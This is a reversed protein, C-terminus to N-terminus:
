EEKEKVGGTAFWIFLASLLFFKLCYVIIVVSSTEFRTGRTVFYGDSFANWIPILSIVALITMIIRFGTIYKKKMRLRILIEKEM